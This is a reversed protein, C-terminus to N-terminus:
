SNNETCRCCQEYNLVFFRSDTAKSMLQIQARILVYPAGGRQSLQAHCAYFAYNVRCTSNIPICEYGAYGLIHLWIWPRFINTFAFGYLSAVQARQM